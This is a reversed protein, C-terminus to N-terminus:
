TSKVCPHDPVRLFYYVGGLLENADAPDAEIAAKRKQTQKMMVTLVAFCIIFTIVAVIGAAAATGAPKHYNKFVMVAHFIGLVIGAM